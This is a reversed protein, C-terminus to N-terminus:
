NLINAWHAAYTYFIRDLPIHSDPFQIENGPFEVQFKVRKEYIFEDPLLEQMNKVLIERFYWMEPDQQSSVKYLM